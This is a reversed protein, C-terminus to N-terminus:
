SDDMKAPQAGITGADALFVAWERVRFLQVLERELIIEKM